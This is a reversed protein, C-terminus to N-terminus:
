FFMDVCEKIAIISKTARFRKTILYIFFFFWLYHRTLFCKSACNFLFIIVSFLLVCCEWFCWERGTKKIYEFVNNCLSIEIKRKKIESEMHM